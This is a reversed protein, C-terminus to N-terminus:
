GNKPKRGRKRPQPESTQHTDADKEQEQATPHGMMFLDDQLMKKLVIRFCDDLIGLDMEMGIMVFDMKRKRIREIAQDGIARACYGCYQADPLNMKKCYPCRFSYNASNMVYEVQKKYDKDFICGDGDMQDQANM